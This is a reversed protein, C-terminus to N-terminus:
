ETEGSNSIKRIIGTNGDMEVYDEDKLWNLLGPVSVVAPLNLERSVIAAHSLLSGKEVLIGSVSSFLM